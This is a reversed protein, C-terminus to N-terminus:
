TRYTFLLYKSLLYPFNRVTRIAHILPYVEPIRDGLEDLLPEQELDQEQVVNTPMIWTVPAISSVLVGFRWRRAKAKSGGRPKSGKSGRSMTWWLSPESEVSGIMYLSECEGDRM